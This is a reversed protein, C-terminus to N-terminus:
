NSELAGLLYGELRSEPNSSGAHQGQFQSTGDTGCLGLIRSAGGPHQNIWDTLDYVSGDIISWCSEESDNQSVAELTLAAAMGPGAPAEEPTDTWDEDEGVDDALRTEETTESTSQDESIAVQDDTDSGTACGILLLPALLLFPIKRM